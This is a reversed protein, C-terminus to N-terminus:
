RWCVLTVGTPLTVQKGTDVHILTLRADEARDDRFGEASAAAPGAATLGRFAIWKGDPSFVPGISCNFISVTPSGAAVALTRLGPGDSSVVCLERRGYSYVTRIFAIRRGDPSFAPWADDDEGPTLQRLGSSDSNIVCLDSQGSGESRPWIQLTHHRVFAIQRGHPNSVLWADDDGNPTLKRLGSGDRNIVAISPHYGMEPYESATLFVISKGDASFSPGEDWRGRTLTTLGSGDTRVTYIRSEGGTKKPNQADFVIAQGDPSFSPDGSLPPVALSGSDVLKYVSYTGMRAIYLSEVLNKAEITPYDTDFATFAIRSCDPSFVPGSDGSPLRPYVQVADSRATDVSVVFPGSGCDMDFVFRGGACAKRLSDGLGLGASRVSEPIREVVPAGRMVSGAPLRWVALGDAGGSVLTQGDPSFAVSRVSDTHGALTCLLKGDSAKWLKIRHDDSGSVVTKGNPSFVVCNVWRTHGTLTRRLRAERVNWLEISSDAGVALTQGDPSFAVPDLGNTHGPFTHLLKGDSAMWFQVDSDWIGAAVTQGDPSYAVSNVGSQPKAFTRLFTGDGANWLTITNDGSFSVLTQGDPSFAVSYVDRTYEMIKHLLMGDRTRWLRISDDDSGSALTQGDPSFEVSRAPDTHGTLTRLLMGDRLRYLGISGDERTGAVTAGDPSIAVGYTPYTSFWLLTISSGEARLATRASVSLLALVLLTIFGRQLRFARM